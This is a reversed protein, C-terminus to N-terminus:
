DLLSILYKDINNQQKKKDSIKLKWELKSEIFKEIEHIKWNWSNRWEFYHIENWIIENIIKGTMFGNVTKWQSDNKRGNKKLMINVRWKVLWDDTKQM